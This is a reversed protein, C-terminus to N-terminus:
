DIESDIEIGIFVALDDVLITVELVDRTAAIIRRSGHGSILSLVSVGPSEAGHV